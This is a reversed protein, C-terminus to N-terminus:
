RILLHSQIQALRMADGIGPPQQALQNQQQIYAELKEVRRELAEIKEQDTM